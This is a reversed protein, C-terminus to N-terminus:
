RGFVELGETWLGYAMFLCIFLLSLVGLAIGVRALSKTPRDESYLEPRRVAALGMAVGAPGLAIPLLCAFVPALVELRGALTNALGYSYCFWVVFAIFAMVGCMASGLARRDISRM